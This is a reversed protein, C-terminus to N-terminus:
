KRMSGDKIVEFFLTEFILLIVGDPSAFLDM